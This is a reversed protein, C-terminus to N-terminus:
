LQLQLGRKRVEDRLHALDEYCVCLMLAIRIGRRCMISWFQRPSIRMWGHHKEVWNIPFTKAALGRLQQWRESWSSADPFLKLVRHSLLLSIEARLLPFPSRLISLCIQLFMIQKSSVEGIKMKRGSSLASLPNIYAYFHKDHEYLPSLHCPCWQICKVQHIRRYYTEGVNALDDIVCNVCARLGCSNHIRPASSILAPVESAEFPKQLPLLTHLRRCEPASMGYEVLANFNVTAYPKHLKRAAAQLNRMAAHALYTDLFEEDYPLPVNLVSFTQSQLMVM